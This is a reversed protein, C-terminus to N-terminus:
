TSKHKVMVKRFNVGAEKCVKIITKQIDLIYIKIDELVYVITCLPYM